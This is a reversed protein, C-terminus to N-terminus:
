KPESWPNEPTLMVVMAQQESTELDARQGLLDVKLHGQVVFTEEVGAVRDTSADYYIRGEAAKPVMEVDVIKFPLDSSPDVPPFYELEHVYNYLALGEKEGGRRYSTM